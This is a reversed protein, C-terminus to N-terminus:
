TRGREITARVAEDVVVSEAAVVRRIRVENPLHSDRDNALRFAEAGAQAAATRTPARGVVVWERQDPFRVEVLYGSM